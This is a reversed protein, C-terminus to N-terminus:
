LWDMAQRAAPRGLAGLDDLEAFRFCTADVSPVQEGERGPWGADSVQGAEALDLVSPDPLAGTRLYALRARDVEDGHAVVYGIAAALGVETRATVLGLTRRRYTLVDAAVPRGPRGLGAGRGAPPGRRPVRGGQAHGAGGGLAGRVQLAARDPPGAAAGVAGGRVPDPGEPHARQGPHPRDRVRGAGTRRGAPLGQRGAALGAARHRHHDRGRGRGAG